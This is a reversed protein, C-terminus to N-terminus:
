LPVVSIDLDELVEAPLDAGSDTVIKIPRM